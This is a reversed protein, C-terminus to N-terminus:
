MGKGMEQVRRKEGEMKADPYRAQTDAKANWAPYKSLRDMEAVNNRYESPMCYQEHEVAGEGYKSMYNEGAMKHERLSTYIYYYYNM